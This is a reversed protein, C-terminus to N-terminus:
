RLIESIEQDTLGLARLKSIASDRLAEAEAAAAERAAREAELNAASAQADAIEQETMPRTTQEGTACNVEIVTYEESM